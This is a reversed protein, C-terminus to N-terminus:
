PTTWKHLNQWSAKATLERSWIHPFFDQVLITGPINAPDEPKYKQFSFTENYPLLENSFLNRSNLKSFVRTRTEVRASVSSKINTTKYM